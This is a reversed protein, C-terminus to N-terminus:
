TGGLKGLLTRKKVRLVCSPVIALLQNLRVLGLEIATEDHQDVCDERIASRVKFLQDEVGVRLPVKVQEERRRPSVALGCDPEYPRRLSPTALENYNNRVHRLARCREKGHAGVM